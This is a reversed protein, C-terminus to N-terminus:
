KEDLSNVQRFYNINSVMFELNGDVVVFHNFNNEIFKDYDVVIFDYIQEFDEKDSGYFNMDHEGTAFNKVKGTSKSYFLTIKDYM